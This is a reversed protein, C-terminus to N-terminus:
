MNNPNNIFTQSHKNTPNQNLNPNNSTPTTRSNKAQKREGKEEERKNHETIFVQQKRKNPHNSINTYAM